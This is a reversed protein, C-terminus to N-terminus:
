FLSRSISASVTTVNRASPLSILASGTFTREEEAGLVLGFEFDQDIEFGDADLWKITADFNIASDINNKVTLRWAFRWWVSAQETIRTSVDVIQLSESPTPIPTPTPTPTLTPTPTPTLTATPTPTPSGFPTLTPMAAITAAVAADITGQIDVDGDSACATLGLIAVLVGIPWQKGRSSVAM